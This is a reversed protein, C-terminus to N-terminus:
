MGLFILKGDIVDFDIVPTFDPDTLQAKISEPDVDDDDIYVRIKKYFFPKGKSDYNQSILEYSLVHDDTFYNINQIVPNGYKLFLAM